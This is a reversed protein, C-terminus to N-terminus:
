KRKLTYIYYTTSAISSFLVVIITAYAAGISGWRQILLFDALINIISSIISEVLNFLLKRQSVLLNSSIIRFTGSFFYNISLLRFIPIVDLYQKGFFLRIIIPAGSYLILTIVLNIIGIYLLMKKYHTLCWKKDDVHEAFYPYIYLILSHPIFNLAAPIMTAIKYGALIEEKPDIIGILFIDLLYLLQSLANNCMSIFSRRLLNIREQHPLSIVKIKFLPVHFFIIGICIITFYAVYYGAIMGKERLCFSFLVSSIFLFVTYLVSFISYNKNEKQARFYVSFLSYILQLIPLLSLLCLLVRGSEIKLPAFLGIFFLCLVLLIDFYLGFRISYSFISVIYPKNASQESSVQLMGSEIGMGNFLLVFSYINWAYTFAGYETKTLIRVLILNSIFAIILNLVSSGFIHFFGTQKLKNLKIRVEQFLFIESM